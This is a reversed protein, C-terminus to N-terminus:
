FLPPWACKRLVTVNRPLMCEKKMNYSKKLNARQGKIGAVNDNGRPLGHFHVFILM